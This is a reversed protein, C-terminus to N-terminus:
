HTHARSCFQFCRYPNEKEGESREHSWECARHSFSHFISAMTLIKHKSCFKCVNLANRKDDFPQQRDTHTKHDNKIRNDWKKRRSYKQTNERQACLSRYAFLNHAHTYDIVIDCKSYTHMHTSINSDIECPFLKWKTMALFVMSIAYVNKHDGNWRRVRISWIRKRCM